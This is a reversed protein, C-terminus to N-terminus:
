GPALAKDIAVCFESLSFPKSLCVKRREQLFKQTKDNIVDGTIFIIRESLVPNAACLREYVQQGNLGPMKWDCLALDYPTQSLRRLATEGDRAVDVQFGHQHLTERMMQLISEEDDIVLVKKGAGYRGRVPACSEPEVPKAEAPAPATCPLELIFKAGEGPKSSVTINGGHEHVIGYCLSLGLGTGKGVEKTTFFPDFIRKLNEEPIGPGNDHFIVRLSHGCLESRIRISGKPQHAEIAQRANNIINLFVQQLQHPDVMTEPLRPDLESVVEINSTRLQYHLFEVAAELLANVNSPKREPPHRRAFSLLNQVIKQCRLASKHILDLHRQHKPNSDSLKLLESFGMVSTLPNNLEHAVGAVFEGIGSLKESQVLQAQMTKLRDVTQELEARSHQLNETMRNFVEALEGCEDGSTVAVRPSFDGKGVLEASNRLLRLPQTVKRILIWVVTTSLLIGLTSVLLLRQQTSRLVRLPQEYSCLLLYGLHNDEAGADLRGASCFYHEDGLLVKNIRTSKRPKVGDSLAGSFLAALDTTGAEAASSAIVRGRNLLVVQSHTLNGFERVIPEGIELGFTIAGVLEGSTSAVPLSVTDFLREGAGITDVTEEGALAQKISKASQTEFEGLAILPDRKANALLEGTGSTFLVVDVSQDTPIDKIQAKLTPKDGSQFAARYRPENPLNRFRVLLDGRHLKLSNRFVGEATALNQAAETEFQQTLRHNVLWVNLAVLLVMVTVVPVLVKTSFKVTRHPILRAM